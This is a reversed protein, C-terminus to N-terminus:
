LRRRIWKFDAVRKDEGKIPSSCSRGALVRFAGRIRDRPCALLAWRTDQIAQEAQVQTNEVGVMLSWRGEPMGNRHAQWPGRAKGRDCEWQRCQGRHIRLSFQTEAKAWALLFAAEDRTQATSAVARAVAELQERKGQSEADEHFLPLALIISLIANLM